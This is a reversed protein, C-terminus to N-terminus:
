SIQHISKTQRCLFVVNSSPQHHGLKKTFFILFFEQVFNQWCFQRSGKCKEAHEKFKPFFIKYQKSWSDQLLTKFTFKTCCGPHPILIVILQRPDILVLLLINSKSTSLTECLKRHPVQPNIFYLTLIKMQFLIEIM